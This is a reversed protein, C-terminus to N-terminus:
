AGAKANCQEEFALAKPFLVNNEKHVHQHMDKELDQLGDLMARFTNCADVPPAYDDSLDRIKEMADGANDHEHEMARIPAALGMGCAHDPGPQGSELGRILPFLVNEEKMMHSQLEASFARFVSDVEVMWPHNDGHVAAVKRVMFGLRPLEEKLYTHHTHQIHDALDTLKMADADVLGGTEPTSQADYALVEALVSQADMGRKACAEALPLKGGCCYDLGLKEFM